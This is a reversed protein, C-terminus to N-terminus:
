QAVGGATSAEKMGSVVIHYSMNAGGRGEWDSVRVYLQVRSGAEGPVLLDLRSNRDVGPNIDDNVCVDDFADPTPDAVGPPPIHDDGPNRCSLLPEGDDRQIEIVPDFANAQGAERASVEVTVISGAGAQLRYYDDVPQPDSAHEVPSLPTGQHLSVASLRLATAVGPQSQTLLDRMQSTLRGAIAQGEPSAILNKAEDPDHIWDYLQDGLRKHVILHWQGSVLSKMSGAGSTPVNRIPAAHARIGFTNHALESLVDPWTAPPSERWLPSLSPVPFQAAASDDGLINLVTAPLASITVPTAVRKRPIHGPYWLILPVQIEGRYLAGGHTRLGHQGLEEGHDSTIVLITNDALGRRELEAMLEGVSDDVYKVGDDYQDVPASQPWPPTALSRPAGYPEHVDFYNLFAFFPRERSRDVWQLLEHNVVAARKRVGPSGGSGGLGEDDRDLIAEFGLWRLARRYKSRDSRALVIRSFERGYLTRVFRDPVSHFYDEFHIFSKGFGLDHSFWARNASFAGTRYGNQQLVEGLTLHGGLDPARPGFVPLPVMRQIGHEFQYRGTLLSVHSPFSWSCASFANEFLVGQGAIRDINPSTPRAYGYSSLHDARLTDVVIVLVNPSAPAAPPLGALARQERWWRGGQVAVLVLVAAAALWPTTRRWFGLVEAERPKMWRTFVAGVGIALLLCSGHYLRATLTLWDYVAASSLLFAALRISAIRPLLRAVAAIAIVLGSFLILDVVVSIWLIPEAVHLMPGWSAWNIRQFLLLGAGEVLGTVIGFWVAMLLLTGLSPRTAHPGRTMDQPESM